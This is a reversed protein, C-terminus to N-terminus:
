TRPLIKAETTERQDEQSETGPVTGVRAQVNEIETYLGKLAAFYNIKYSKSRDHWEKKESQKQVKEIRKLNRTSRQVIVFHHFM